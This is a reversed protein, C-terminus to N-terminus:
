RSSVSWSISQLLWRSSREPWVAGHGPSPLRLPPLTHLEGGEGLIHWNRCKPSIITYFNSLYLFPTFCSKFFMRKLFICFVACTTCLYHELFTDAIGSLFTRLRSYQIEYQQPDSQCPAASVINACGSETQVAWLVLLLSLPLHSLLTHLFHLNCWRSTVM